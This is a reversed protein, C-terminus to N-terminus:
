PGTGTDNVGPPLFHRCAVDAAHFQPSYRGFDSHMGPVNGLNLQGQPTPDLMSIDHQRMCQAYQTLAPMQAAVQAARGANKMQIIPELFHNCANLAPRNAATYAPIEVSLGAHGPRHIPDPENVGHARLCRTFNVM